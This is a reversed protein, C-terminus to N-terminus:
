EDKKDGLSTIQEIYFEKRSKFFRGKVVVISNKNLYQKSLEYPKSFLPLDLEGNDDYITVFAMQEGKKTTITRISKIICAINIEEGNTLSIDSINTFNINSKEKAISLPTTSVMMGLVDNEKYLNEMINDSVVNMTPKPFMSIDIITQGNEGSVLSAYNLAKALSSRLSARSPYISDFAGSDILSIIQKSNIKYQNTRVVFDFLDIFPGNKRENIIDIVNVSMIGKISSLPMLINNDKVLYSISSLNIDPNILKIGEGKMESITTLTNGSNSSSLISAYFEKKYHAKLYAMKSTLYAYGLAHSKNFGYDGFKYILKYVDEAEKQSYGNKISGDIFKKSYSALLANNKKSIARRLLDAEGFSFGAMKNAIQMIQEQYVIIGYTPSLIDKLSSSLYTYKELDYKRKAYHIINDMPGPRYLALLATVDNIDTIKLEKIAKRMGISEIQFLGMTKGSAIQKIADNDNVPILDFNIDVNYDQKIRNLCEKVTTLNRISLLDMKLFYQEELFDKEYDSVLSGDNEVDVPMINILDDNNIIIGAAHLGKQRPLGEIKNALSVIELYYKDEDVLSKFDKNTKYLQRLSLKEEDKKITKTFLEIDHRPYNFVRGIDGLAQKAGFRQVALVKSVRNNGYKEKLYNAVEDRRIDEFDIDIDPLTQREKNLFREFILNYKIPDCQTIDLTYSVLSGVASGRGPGVLINNKRAFSVYDNVLLFYDSYGMNKIVNLEYNLRDIYEKTNLNKSNLGDFCLKKLYSDSDLNFSNIFHLINGRKKIFEFHISKAIYYTEEIEDDTYINTIEDITKLYEIGNCKKDDLLEKHDIAEVIKLTIADEKNLYRVFPFAIVKYSYKNFFDRYVIFDVKNNEDLGIYFNKINKSFNAFALIKNESNFLSRFLMTNTNLIVILNNTLEKIDDINIDRTKSLYSIKLLNNYGDENLPIFTIPSSNVIIDEGIIPTINNTKCTHVFKPAGTLNESDTLSLFEYGLKYAKKVYENIKLGSKLYSYGSYVHLPVFKM